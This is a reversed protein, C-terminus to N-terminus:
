DFMGVLMVILALVVISGIVLWGITFFWTMATPTSQNPEPVSCYDDPTYTLRVFGYRQSLDFDGDSFKGKVLVDILEEFAYEEGVVAYVDASPYCHRYYAIRDSVHHANSDDIFESVHFLSVQNERKALISVQTNEDIEVDIAVNWGQQLLFEGYAHKLATLNCWRRWGSEDEFASINNVNVQSAM